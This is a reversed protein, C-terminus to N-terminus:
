DLQMVNELKNIQLDNKNEKVRKRLIRIAKKDVAFGLNRLLFLNAIAPLYNAQRSM